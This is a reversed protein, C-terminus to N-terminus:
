LKINLLYGGHARFMGGHSTCKQPSTLVKKQIGANSLKKKRRVDGDQKKKVLSIMVVKVLSIEPM